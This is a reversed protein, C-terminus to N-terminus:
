WDAKHSGTLRVGSGEPVQGASYSYSSAFLLRLAAYECCSRPLYLSFFM